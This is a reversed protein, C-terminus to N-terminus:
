PNGQLMDDDLHKPTDLDIAASEMAMATVLDPHATILKNAGQDGELKGLQEFFVPPFIVPPMYQSGAQAVVIREPNIRWRDAMAQLDSAQLQWQDCLLIMVGHSNPNISNIGAAISSGMGASWHPNHVWRVTTQQVADKVAEANAGTVVIIELPSVSQAIDVANQILTGSKIRVLQKAQGLRTSAGAAPILVSLQPHSM